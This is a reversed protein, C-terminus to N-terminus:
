QAPLRAIGHVKKGRLCRIHLRLLLEQKVAVREREALGEEPEAGRPM